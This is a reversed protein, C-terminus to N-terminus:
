IHIDVAARMGAGPSSDISVEGKLSSIRSFINSIGMGKQGVKDPDLEAM